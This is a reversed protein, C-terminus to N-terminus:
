ENTCFSLDLLPLEIPGVNRIEGDGDADIWIPNTFAFTPNSTIYPLNPGQAVFVLAGDEMFNFTKLQDLDVFSDESPNLALDELIRGQFLIILRTIKAYSPTRVRIRIQQQNGSLTSGIEPGDPFDIFAGAGVSVNGTKMASVVEEQTVAIPQNSAIKFYNRPYGVPYALSHSDSNGVGTVRVGQNLLGLWDRMVKCFDGQRNYVEVSNFRNTWQPSDIEEVALNHEYGTANFFGADDRPHNVQIWKAGRQIAQDIMEPIKRIQWRGNEDKAVLPPANGASLDSNPDYQMGYAGLHGVRPSIEVGTIPTAIWRNLDYKVAFAPYDVLVDHDSNVMFGVGEAINSLIRNRASVESDLSPTSHQHFEGSTYGAMPIEENLQIDLLLNQDPILDISQTHASYHWGRTVEVQWSGAPLELVDDAYVPNPNQIRDVPLYLHIKEEGTVISRLIVKAGIPNQAQDKVSFSLKAPRPYVIPIPTSNNQGESRFGNADVTVRVPSVAGGKWRIGELVFEGYPLQVEGQGMEDLRVHSVIAQNQNSRVLLEAHAQGTLKVLQTPIDTTLLPFNSIGGKTLELKRKSLLLQTPAGNFTGIIIPDFTLRPISIVDFNEGNMKTWRYALNEGIAGVFRPNTPAFENIQGEYFQVADDSWIMLDYLKISYLQDSQVWTYVEIESRDAYLHYENILNVKPPVSTPLYSLIIRSGDSHGKVQIIAPKGDGGLSAIGMQDIVIEGLGPSVLIQNLRDETPNSQFTADIIDGGNFAMQSFNSTGQVCFRAIANEIIYCGPRCKINVGDAIQTSETVKAVRLMGQNLPQNLDADGELYANLELPLLEPLPPPVFADILQDEARQDAGQDKGQDAGQDNGQDAGQDKGQDSGQDNSSSQMDVSQDTSLNPNAKKESDDCSFLHAISLFLCILLYSRHNM